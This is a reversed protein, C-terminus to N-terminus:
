DWDDGETVPIKLGLIFGILFTAIIGVKGTTSETTIGVRPLLQIAAYSLIGGVVIGPLLRQFLLYAAVLILIGLIAIITPSLSSIDFPLQNMELGIETSIARSLEVQSLSLMIIVLFFLVTRLYSM